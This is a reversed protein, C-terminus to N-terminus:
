FFFHIKSKGMWIRFRYMSIMHVYKPIYQADIQPYNIIQMDGVTLTEVEQLLTEGIHPKSYSEDVFVDGTNTQMVDVHYNGPSETPNVEILNKDQVQM